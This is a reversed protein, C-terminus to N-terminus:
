RSPVVDWTHLSPMYINVSDGMLMGWVYEAYETCDFVGIIYLGRRGKTVQLDRWVARGRCCSIDAEKLINSGGAGISSHGLSATSMSVATSGPAGFGFRYWGGEGDEWYVTSHSLILNLGLTDPGGNRPRVIQAKCTKNILKEDCCAKRQLDYVEGACCGESDTDYIDRECCGERPMMPKGACCPPEYANRVDDDPMFAPGGPVSFTGDPDRQSVPTSREYGYTNMGDAYELPDRQTFRGSAPSLMRARNYYLGFERDYLLGQHGIDCLGALGSGLPGRDLRSSDLVPYMVKPDNACRPWGATSGAGFVQGDSLDVM